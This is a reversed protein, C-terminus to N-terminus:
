PRSRADDLALRLAARGRSVRSAITGRTTGVIRTASEFDFGVADVLWVASREEARLGALARELADREGVAASSSTPSAALGEDLPVAHRRRARELERLCANYAIRFLWTSMAAEGRFRSLGRFASVYTEQMVDEMESSSGLMRYVLARLQRDHRRVLEAFDAHGRRRALEAIEDEPRLGVTAEAAM